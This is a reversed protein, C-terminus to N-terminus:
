RCIVRNRIDAVILLGVDVVRRQHDTETIRRLHQSDVTRSGPRDMVAAVKRHRDDLDATVPTDHTRM